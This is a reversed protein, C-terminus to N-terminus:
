FYAFHANEGGTSLASLQTLTGDTALQFLDGSNSTTPTFAFFYLNGNLEHFGGDEGAFSGFSAAPDTRVPIAQPTSSQDHLVFLDPGTAGTGIASFYLAPNTM